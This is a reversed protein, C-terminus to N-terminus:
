FLLSVVLCTREDWGFGHETIQRAYVKLAAADIIPNRQYASDLFRQCLPVTDEENIGRHSTAAITAQADDKLVGGPVHLPESPRSLNYNDSQLLFSKIGQVAPIDDFSSWGLISECSTSVAAAEPIDLQGFGNDAFDSRNPAGADQFTPSENAAPANSPHRSSLPNGVSPAARPHAGLHSELLAVAHNVRELIQGPSPEITSKSM